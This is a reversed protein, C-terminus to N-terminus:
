DNSPANQPDAAIMYDAAAWASVAALEMAERTSANDEQQLVYPLLNNFAAAAFLHRATISESM